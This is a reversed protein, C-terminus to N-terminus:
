SLRVLYKKDPWMRSQHVRVSKGHVFERFAITEGPYDRHYLEDFAVIGGPVLREWILDLVTKTSEYLDCDIHVLAFGSAPNQSLFVPLTENFWGKVLRVNREKEAFAFLEQYGRDDRYGGPRMESDGQSAVVDVSGLEPLGEFSDFGYVMRQHAPGLNQQLLRLLRVMCILSIGGAVGFEAVDGPVGDLASLLEHYFFLQHWERDSGRLQFQRLPEFTRTITPKKSARRDARYKRLLAFPTSFPPGLVEAARAVRRPLRQRQGPGGGVVDLESPIEMATPHPPYDKKRKAGDVFAIKVALRPNAGGGRYASHLLRNHFILADGARMECDGIRAGSSVLGSIIEDSVEKDFKDLDRSPYVPGKHSGEIFRMCGSSKDTDTLAIWLTGMTFEPDFEEWYNADQHWPTPKASPLKILAKTHDIFTRQHQRVFLPLVQSRSAIRLLLRRADPNQTLAYKLEGKQVLSFAHDAMGMKEVLVGRLFNVEAASLLGPLNVFGRELYETLSDKSSIEQALQDLMQFGQSVLPSQNVSM